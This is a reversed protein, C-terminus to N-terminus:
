LENGGTGSDFKVDIEEAHTLGDPGTFFRHIKVPKRNQAAGEADPAPQMLVLASLLGVGILLVSKTNM